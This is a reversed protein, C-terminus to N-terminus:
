DTKEIGNNFESRKQKWYQKFVWFLCSLVMIIIFLSFVMQQIQLVTLTKASPNQVDVWQPIRQGNVKGQSIEPATLLIPSFYFSYGGPLDSLISYFVELAPNRTSVSDHTISPSFGGLFPIVSGVFHHSFIFDSLFIHMLIFVFMCSILAM